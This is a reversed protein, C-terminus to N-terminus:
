AHRARHEGGIVRLMDEARHLKTRARGMSQGLAVEASDVALWDDATVYRRSNKRLLDVIDRESSTTDFTRDAADGLLTQITENADSKNTGIIGTPGRKIWGAVYTRGASESEVRGGTNPITGRSPDFPLGALPTGLYGVSRFVIQAPIHVMDGAAAARGDPGVVMRELRIGEVRHTGLIEGPNLRFHMHIRRPRGQPKREAWEQLIEFNRQLGPQASILARTPEDVDLESPDLIVDADALEGLEKLEVSSFKAQAPGRRGILHIDSIQSRALVDLVHQPMDTHRLEAPNKALVRSVDLAVNGMGIVVASRASLEFADPELDPHGNYWSVFRGAAFSGALKEGPIGMWRHQATGVAVVVADYHRHLEELTIDRGIEVNGFFRAEERALIKRFTAVASKIKLHDPAVGYRLLGYPCPLREFVDVRVGRKTLADSAFLGAPGAGVVAVARM